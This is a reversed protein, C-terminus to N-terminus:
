VGKYVEGRSAITKIHVKDTGVYSFLIRWDGVRLRFNGPAGKLPVIDGAPIKGVAKRIRQQTAADQKDLIKEAQKSYSARM